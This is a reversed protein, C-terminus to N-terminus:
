ALMLMSQWMMDKIIWRPPLFKGSETVVGAKEQQLGWFYFVKQIDNPSGEMVNGFKDRTCKIQQCSFMVVLLPDDEVMRMESLEVDGVFLITPDETLGQM